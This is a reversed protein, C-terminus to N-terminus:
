GRIFVAVPGLWPHVRIFVAVRSLWPHVRIFGAVPGLWPLVRIFVAVRSLWPHVRIFVSVRGLWPLVRIFVSVRGLWPHVRIFVAVRSAVSACPMLRVSLRYGCFSLVDLGGFNIADNTRDPGRRSPVTRREQQDQREARGKTKEVEGRGEDVRV